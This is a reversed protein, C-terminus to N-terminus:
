LLWPWCWQLWTLDKATLLRKLPAPGPQEGKSCRRSNFVSSCCPRAVLDFGKGDTLAETTSARTARGQQLLTNLELRQSEPISTESHALVDGNGSVIEIASLDGTSALQNLTAQWE